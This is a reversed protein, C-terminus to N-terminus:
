LFYRDWFQPGKIQSWNCSQGNLVVSQQRDSLFSHLLMCYNGCIRLSKLKYMFGDHWVRDLAMSLDLVEGRPWLMKCKWQESAPCVKSRTCYRCSDVTAVQEDVDLSVSHCLTCQKAMNSRMLQARYGTKRQQFLYYFTRPCMSLMAQPSLSM